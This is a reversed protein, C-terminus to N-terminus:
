SPAFTTRPWSSTPTSGTSIKTSRPSTFCTSMVWRVGDNPAAKPSM